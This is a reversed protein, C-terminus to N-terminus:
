KQKEYKVFLYHTMNQRLVPHSTKTENKQTRKLIVKIEM